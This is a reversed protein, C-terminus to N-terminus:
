EVSLLKCCYMRTPPYFRHTLRPHYPPYPPSLFRSLALISSFVSRLSYCSASRGTLLTSFGFFFFLFYLSFILRLSIHSQTLSHTLTEKASSSRESSDTNGLIPILTIYPVELSFFPFINSHERYNRSTSFYAVAELLLIDNLPPLIKNNCFQRVNYRFRAVPFVFQFVHELSSNLHGRSGMPSLEGHVDMGAALTCFSKWPPWFACSCKSM